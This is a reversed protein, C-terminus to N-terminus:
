CKNVFITQFTIGALSTLAGICPFNSPHSATSCYRWCVMHLTHSRKARMSCDLLMTYSSVANHVSGRQASCQCVFDRYERSTAIWCVMVWYLSFERNTLSMDKVFRFICCANHCNRLRACSMSTSLVLGYQVSRLCSTWLMFLLLSSARRTNKIGM